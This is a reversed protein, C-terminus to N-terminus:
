ELCYGLLGGGPEYQSRRVRAKIALIRWLFFSHMNTGIRVGIQFGTKKEKKSYFEECNKGLHAVTKLANAQESGGKGPSAIFAIKKEKGWFQRDRCKM